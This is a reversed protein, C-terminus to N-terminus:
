YKGQRWHEYVLKVLGLVHALAKNNELGELFMNIETIYQENTKVNQCNQKYAM